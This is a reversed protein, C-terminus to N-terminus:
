FAGTGERSGVSVGEFRAGGLCLTVADRPSTALYGLTALFMSSTTPAPAVSLTPSALSAQTVFLGLTTTMEASLDELGPKLGMRRRLLLKLEASTTAQSAFKNERIPVDGLSDEMGAYIICWSHRM